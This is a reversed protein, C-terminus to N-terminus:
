RGREAIRARVEAALAADGTEEARALARLAAARADDPRGAAAYAVSLTDLIGADRGDSAAAAEEALAVAAPADRLAPDPSTVLIWALNNLVFADRRGRRLAERYGAAAEAARGASELLAAREAHLSSEGPALAVAADLERLAADRDSRAAHARALQLRWAVIRPQLAVAAELPAVAGAAEGRALLAAGLYGHPEALDPRLRVAERYRALAAEVRGARELARGLNALV